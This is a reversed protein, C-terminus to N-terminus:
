ACRWNKACVLGEEEVLIAFEFRLECDDTFREGCSM